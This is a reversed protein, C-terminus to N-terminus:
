IAYSVALNIGGLVILMLRLRSKCSKIGNNPFAFGIGGHLSGDICCRGITRRIINKYLFALIQSMHLDITGIRM